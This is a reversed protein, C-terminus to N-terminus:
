EIGYKKNDYIMIPLLIPLFIIFIMGVFFLLINCNGFLEDGAAITKMNPGWLWGLGLLRLAAFGVLEFM